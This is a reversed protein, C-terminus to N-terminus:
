PVTNFASSAGVFGPAFTIEPGDHLGKRDNGVRLDGGEFVGAEPCRQFGGAFHEAVVVEDDCGRRKLAPAYDGSEIFTVKGLYAPEFHDNRFLEM